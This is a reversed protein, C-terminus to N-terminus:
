ASVESLSAALAPRIVQAWRRTLTGEPRGLRKAADRWTCDQWFVLWIAARDVPDLDLVARGVVESLDTRAEANESATLARPDAPEAAYFEEGDATRRVLPFASDHADQRGPHRPEGTFPKGGVVKSVRFQASRVAHAEPADPNAEFEQWAAVMAEQTLDEWLHPVEKARARVMRGIQPSLAALTDEATM